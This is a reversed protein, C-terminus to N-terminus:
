PLRALPYGIQRRGELGPDCGHVVGLAGDCEVVSQGRVQIDPPLQDVDLSPRVARGVVHLLHQRRPIHHLQVQVGNEVPRLQHLDPVVALM